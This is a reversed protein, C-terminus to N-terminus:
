KRIVLRDISKGNDSAEAVIDRHQRDVPGASKGALKKAGGLFKAFTRVDALPGTVEPFTATIDNGNRSSLRVSGADVRAIARQGDWKMEWAWGDSKPLQGLTALM